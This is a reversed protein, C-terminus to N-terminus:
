GGRQEASQLLQEKAARFEADNICGEQYALKLDRLEDGLTPRAYTKSTTSDDKGVSWACGSLTLTLASLLVLGALSRLSLKM